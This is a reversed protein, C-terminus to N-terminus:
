PACQMAGLGSFPSREYTKYTRGTRCNRITEYSVRMEAALKEIPTHPETRIRQVQDPTLKRRYAFAEACRKRKLAITAADLKALAAAIAVGHPIYQIHLPNICHPNGCTPQLVTRGKGKREHGRWAHRPLKGTFLEVLLQRIHVQPPPRTGTEPHADFRKGPMRLKPSGSLIAGHWTTCEDDDTSNIWIRYLVVALLRGFIALLQARHLNKATNM